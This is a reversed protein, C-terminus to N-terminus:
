YLIMGLPHKIQYKLLSRISMSQFTEGQYDIRIELPLMFPCPQGYKTLMMERMMLASKNVPITDVKEELFNGDGDSDLIFAVKNGQLYKFLVSRFSNNNGQSYFSTLYPDNPLLFQAGYEVYRYGEPSSALISDPLNKINHPRSIVDTVITGSPLPYDYKRVTVIVHSQGHLNCSMCFTILVILNVTELAKKMM